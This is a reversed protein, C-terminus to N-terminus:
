SVLDEAPAVHPAVHGKGTQETAAGCLLRSLRGNTLDSLEACLGRCIRERNRAFSVNTRAAVEARAKQTGRALSKPLSRLSCPLSHPRPALSCPSTGFNTGSRRYVWIHMPWINQWVTAARDVTVDDFAPFPPQRSYSFQVFPRDAALADLATELFRRRRGAPEGIVPLGSVISRLARADRGLLEGFAFADGHIVRARPYEARLLRVFERDTEILVLDEEAIGRERIARTVAGTGPGLELVLGGAQPDIQEAIKAALRRGSPIPSAVKWPRALFSKLFALEPSSVSM